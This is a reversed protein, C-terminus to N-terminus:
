PIDAIVCETTLLMSASSAANQICCRLVKAPDIVGVEILNEVIGTKANYGLESKEIMKWIEDYPSAANDCIQRLPAYLVNKILNWGLSDSGTDHMAKAIHFFLSGGGAVYGESIASKTARVADDFRDLREKMETETPAGVQIVAVGGKLKALRREIPAADDENKARTLDMQLENIQNSLAEQNADGGIIITEEKTVRVKKAEGMHEIGIEKIGTGKSDSIYYGGTILAIDEMELERQDGISPAKIVCSELRGEFKNILLFALGEERADECIIVLPRKAGIALKCAKEIQTHHTIQKQYLLILPNIYECIQKEKNNIFMPSAWSKEFRYGDAIKIETLVSKGAEIDIIGEAGIKLFADAIMRGIEPDNNASITAIDFIKNNDDVIQIATKKIENVVYVVAADIERKLQIPNAGDEIMKIGAEAIAELLVVTTTTGDGAQTVTTQAAEQALLVGVREFSDTLDFNRATHYGDKTSNLPLPVSVYNDTYVCRSIIVNRGLPGLTVKVASAIKKVGEFIKDRAPKGYLVEKHM